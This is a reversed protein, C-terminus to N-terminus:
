QHEANRAFPPAPQRCNAAKAAICDAQPPDWFFAPARSRVFIFYALAGGPVLAIIWLWHTEAKRRYADALMWANFLVVALGLLRVMRTVYTTAGAFALWSLCCYRAPDVRRRGHRAIPVPPRASRRLASPCAPAGGVEGSSPWELIGLFAHQTPDSALAGIPRSPSERPPPPRAGGFSAGVAPETTALPASKQAARARRTPAKEIRCLAVLPCDRGFAASCQWRM